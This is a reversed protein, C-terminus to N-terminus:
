RAASRRRRPQRRQRHRGLRDRLPPALARARGGAHRRRAADVEAKGAPRNGTGTTTSRTPSRARCRARRRRALARRPAAGADHPRARAVGRLGAIRMGCWRSGASRARPAARPAARPRARAGPAAADPMSWRSRARDAPASGPRAAHRHRLRLRRHRPRVRLARLDAVRGRRPPRGRVREDAIADLQTECSGPSTARAGTTHLARRGRHRRRRPRRRRRARHPRDDFDRALGVLEGAASFAGYRGTPTSSRM